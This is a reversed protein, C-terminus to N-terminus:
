RLANWSERAAPEAEPASPPSMGDYTCRVGQFWDVSAGEGWSPFWSVGLERALTLIRDQGPSIWQGGQDIFAHGDLHETLTRGGVRDQAEVVLVDVGAADVRRAAYLGALGAGVIVVACVHSRM